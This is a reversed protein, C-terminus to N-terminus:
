TGDADPWAAIPGSLGSGWTLMTAYNSGYTLERVLGTSYEPVWINGSTDVGIYGAGQFQFANVQTPAAIYNSAALEMMRGTNGDIVFLNGSSDVAIGSPLSVSSNVVTPTGGTIETVTGASYDTVFVNGLADTAIGWPATWTGVSVPAAFSKSTSNYVLEYVKGGGYDAVWLNGNSDIAIGRPFVYYGSPSPGPLESPSSYTGPGTRTMEYVAKNGMAAIFLNGTADSAIGQPTTFDTTDIASTIGSYSATQAQVSTSISCLLALMALASMTWEGLGRGFLCVRNARSIVGQCGMIVNM